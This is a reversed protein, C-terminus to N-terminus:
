FVMEKHNLSAKDTLFSDLCLCMTSSMRLILFFLFHLPIARLADLRARLTRYYYRPYRCILYCMISCLDSVAYACLFYRFQIYAGALSNLIIILLSSIFFYLIKYDKLFFLMNFQLILFKAIFCHIVHDAL